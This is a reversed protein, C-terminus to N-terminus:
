APFYIHFTSGKGPESEAKIVGGHNQVIKKCISLGIGTGSYKEKPHLRKFLEFIHESYDKEFGIGNDSLSIKLFKGPENEKGPVFSPDVTESVISIRPAENEKRYKISNSVLNVFLQSLQFPVANIKPLPAAIIQANQKEIRVSLTQNVETIIDNLDVPEFADAPSTVQSFALLDEILRKMRLASANIRELYDKVDDPLGGSKALLRTSFMQMKRLPEQLDHSAIYSFSELEKYSRELEINKSALSQNLDNVQKLMLHKRTTDRITGKMRMPCDNEYEVIGKCYINIIEGNRLYRYECEFIKKDRIATEIAEALLDRDDPHVHELFAELRTSKEMGFIKMLQPTYESGAPDNLEWIFSGMEAIEQAELLQAERQLLLRNTKELEEKQIIVYADYSLLETYTTFRDAEEMIRLQRAHDNTYDDLFCRFIKRRVFAGNTIDETSISNKDIGTLTNDKWKEITSDIYDMAKNDSIAELLETVGIRGLRMLEDEAVSAFLKMLPLEEGASLQFSVKVFEDLKERILFSCYAPLHDFKLKIDDNRHNM